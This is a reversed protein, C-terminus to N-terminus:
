FMKGPNMINDPDLAHKIKKMIEYAEPYMQAIYEKRAVGIGHEGTVTGGVHIAWKHIDDALAKMAVWDDKDSKRITIAPHIAGISIHGYIVCDLGHQEQLEHVKLLTRPLETLPVCIDEGEYVRNYGEKLVSTAAGVTSRASWLREAEKPDSSFQRETIGLADLVEGVKSAQFEVYEKNGEFEFLLMAEAVQVGAQPRYIQVVRLASKDMIEIASPIIGAQYTRIVATGATELDDFYVTLVGKTIPLPLIKVRLETIIGLTGESGAFLRLLDLGAVNKLAKCGIPVISGDPMVVTAGLMYDKATGYKFARMGSADNSVVGGITAMADSGPIVPYFFKHPKLFQNLRDIVVGPQLTVQLNSLDLDIIKNMRTMEIVVGGSTAVAGGTAGTGAGRPIVPIKERACTTVIRAIEETSSPRVVIDPRGTVDSIDFSYVYLIADDMSCNSAGVISEFEKAIDQSLM